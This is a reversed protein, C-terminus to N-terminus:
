VNSNIQQDNANDQAKKRTRSNKTYRCFLSHLACDVKDCLLAEHMSFGCCEKCKAMIAQKQCMQYDSLDKLEDYESLLFKKM